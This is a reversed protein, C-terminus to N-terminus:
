NRFRHLLREVYEREFLITTIAFLLGVIILSALIVLYRNIDYLSSHGRLGYNVTLIVIFLITPLLFVRKAELHIVRGVQIIYVSISVLTWGSVAVSSGVVGWFYTGIAMLGVFLILELFQLNRVRAFYGSSLLFNRSLARAPWLVAFISILPILRAVFTWNSGYLILILEEAACTIFLMIFLSTRILLWVSTNFLISARERDEQLNAFSVSFLPQFINIFTLTLRNNLGISKEYFALNATGSINNIIIKDVNSLWKETLTSVFLDKGNRLFTFFHKKNILHRWNIRFKSIVVTFVGIIIQSIAYRVTLATLGYGRIALLLVTLSSVLFASFQILNYIKFKYSKQLLIGHVGSFMFVLKGLLICLYFILNKSVVFFGVVGAVLGYMLILVFAFLFGTSQFEQDPYERNQLISTNVGFGTIVTMGEVLALMYSFEGFTNPMILRALVMGLVFQLITQSVQVGFIWKASVLFKEKVIM